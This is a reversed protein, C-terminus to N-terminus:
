GYEPDGMEEFVGFRRRRQHIVHPREEPTYDWLPRKIEADPLAAIELPGRAPRTTAM